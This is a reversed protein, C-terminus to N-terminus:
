VRRRSPHQSSGSPAAGAGKSSDLLGLGLQPAAWPRERGGWKRQTSNEGWDKRPTQRKAETGRAKNNKKERQREGSARQMQPKRETGREKDQKKQTGREQKREQSGKGM